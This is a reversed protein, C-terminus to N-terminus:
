PGNRDALSQGDTIGLQGNAVVTTGPKLGTVISTTGDSGIERVHVTKAVVDVLEDQAVMLSTHTEDLFATTPVGVGQVPPLAIAASVPLGAQLRQDANKVLVKVTFNTSGPTVQGLVAVVDGSYTASNTGSVTLHATAGVPISFTDTSSANLLAYVQNLQQVTFITRSGPYEGPNLNRNVVTGDVPSVVTAKDISTQYQQVQAQAQAIAARAGVARRRGRGRGDIGALRQVPQRQGVPEDARYASEGTRQARRGHREAGHDATAHPDAGRHLRERLAVPLTAPEDSRQYPRRPQRLAAQASTVQNVGSGINLTETYRAQEAKADASAANRIDAEVTSQAQALQARLDATDLVALVQGARVRDGENVLVRDAPESLSSTIAVNQYPAIVGSITTTARVTTEKAHATPIPAPTPATRERGAHRACGGLLAAVAITWLVRRIWQM